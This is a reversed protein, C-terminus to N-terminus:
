DRDDGTASNPGFKPLERFLATLDIHKPPMPLETIETIAGKDVLERQMARWDRKVEVGWDEWDDLGQGQLFIAQRLAEMLQMHEGASRVNKNTLDIATSSNALARESRRLIWGLIALVSMIIGGGLIELWNGGNM